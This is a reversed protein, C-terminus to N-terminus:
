RQLKARLLDGFTGFGQRASERKYDRVANREEDVQKAKVSFKLGGDRDTGTVKVEITGGVVLKKRKEGDFEGLDRNSLYGRGKRGPVGQVQVVFGHHEVKEIVVTVLSAPKPAKGTAGSWTGNALAEAENASLKSLSIRRQGRDIREVLVAVMEGDKLVQSAHQIDRGGLESIHLMGELGPALEIFAGFEATRTVKGLQAHGEKLVDKHADWPDPLCARISLGIKGFREKRSIPLVKTVEVDVETGIPGVDSPRTGRSWGLESLHVLGELGDGIDVLVGYERIGTVRGHLKTGVELSRMKDRRLSRQERELLTRRSVVISRGGKSPPLTFELKKGVYANPDEVMDLSMASSPCFVRIGEVIVDFGGRNFGYVVGQVRRRNAQHERIREKAKAKDVYRNILVIHGSESVSGIRGKLVEGVEPPAAAANEVTPSADGHAAHGEEDEDVADEAEALVAAEAAVADHSAAEVGGASTAHADAAPAAEVAAAPEETAAADPSADTAAAQAPEADAAADPVQAAAEPAPAPQVPEPIPEIERPELVDIIATAKGFLDVLATGDQVQTVMGAVIEGTTFAHHREKGEFFRGFPAHALPKGEHHPRPGSAQQEGGEGGKKKRRRRRRKKKGGEGEAAGGEAAEAGEDGSEDDGEEGDDGADDHSSSASAGETSAVAPAAEAGSGAQNEASVAPTHAAAEPASATTDVSSSDKPDNETM